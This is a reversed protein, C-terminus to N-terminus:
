AAALLDAITGAEHGTGDPWLALVHAPMLHGDADTPWWASWYGGSLEARLTRGDTTTIRIGSVGSGARGVVVAISTRDTGESQASLVEVTTPDVVAARGRLDVTATQTLLPSVPLAALCAQLWTANSTVVLTVDGRQEALRVQQGALQTVSGPMRAGPENAHVLARATVDDCTSRAARVQDATARSPEATWSAYAGSGGSPWLVSGVTVASM